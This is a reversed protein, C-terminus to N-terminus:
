MCPDVGALFWRVPSRVLRFLTRCHHRVLVGAATLDPIFGIAIAIQLIMTPTATGGVLSTRRRPPRAVMTALTVM